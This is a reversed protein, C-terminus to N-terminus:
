RGVFPLSGQIYLYALIAVVIVVILIVFAVAPFGGKHEPAEVLSDLGAKESPVQWPIPTEPKPTAPTLDPVDSAGTDQAARVNPDTRLWPPGVDGSALAQEPPEPPEVKGKTPHEM